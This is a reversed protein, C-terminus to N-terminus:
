QPATDAASGAGHERLERPVYAEDHKTLLSSAAFEGGETLTGTAIIGQGERFLDPLSGRYQLDMRGGEADALTFRHDIGDETTYSGPVIQGGLRFIKGPKLDAAVIQSPTRFANLQGPLSLVILLIAGAALIAGLSVWLLRGGVRSGKM